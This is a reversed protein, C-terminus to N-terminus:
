SSRTKFSMQKSMLKKFYKMNIKMTLKEKKTVMKYSNNIFFSTSKFQTLKLNIQFCNIRFMASSQCTNYPVYKILNCSAVKKKKRVYPQDLVVWRLFMLYKAIGGV